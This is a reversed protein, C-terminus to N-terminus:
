ALNATSPRACVRPRANQVDDVFAGWQACGFALMSGGRNQSDRVRILGDAHRAVEICNGNVYSYSSKRWDVAPVDSSGADSFRRM